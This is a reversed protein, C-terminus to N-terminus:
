ADAGYAGHRDCRSLDSRHALPLVLWSFLFLAGKMDRWRVLAVLLGVAFLVALPLLMHESPLVRLYYLWSAVSGVAPDGEAVGSGEYLGWFAALSSLNVLYWPVMLLTATLGTSGVMLLRRPSFRSLLPWAFLLIAGLEFVIAV